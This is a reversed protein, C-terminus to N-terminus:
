LLDTTNFYVTSSLEGNKFHRIFFRYDDDTPLPETLADGVALGTDSQTVGPLETRVLVSDGWDSDIDGYYVRTYATADGNTWHVRWRNSGYVSWWPASPAGAPPDGVPPAIPQSMVFFMALKSVEM